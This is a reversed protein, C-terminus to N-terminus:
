GGERKLAPSDTTDVLCTLLGFYSRDSDSGIVAEDICSKKESASFQSWRKTLENKAATEDETCSEAMSTAGVLERCYQAVDFAPPEDAAAARDIAFVPVVAALAFICTRL